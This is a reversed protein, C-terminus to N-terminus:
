AEKPDFRAIDTGTLDTWAGQVGHSAAALEVHLMAIGGDLRKSVKPTEIANDRALVLGHGDYRFRWPQRNVASPALRATEVASIAWQPWGGKRIGPALKDVAKRKHAGALGQMARETASASVLAYGLPSVSYVREQLSLATLRAVKATDFFGGIWCTDLGLRTAELIVAEGTYGAHQDAFPAKGDAIFLLVHPAGTVKGYGGIIGTFVDEAPTPVLVVRADPYPRWVECFRGLEELQDIEVDVGDFARRSRRRVVAGLWDANHEAFLANSASKGSRPPSTM